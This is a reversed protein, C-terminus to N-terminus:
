VAAALEARRASRFGGARVRPSVAAGGPRDALQDPVRLARTQATDRSYELLVSRGVQGGHGHILQVRWRQVTAAGPAPAVLWRTAAAYDGSLPGTTRLLLGAGGGREAALQLRRAGVRDLRPPAAVVAAVGRCRLCEAIAWAQEAIPTRVMYLRDLPVGMAHLAPPYLERSPDLWILANSAHPLQSSLQSNDTALQSNSERGDSEETEEDESAVRLEYSAVEGRGVGMAAKALLAALFLPRGHEPASLLEHVAGRAFAGGPLLDDLAALGSCFTGAPTASRLGDEGLAHIKGNHCSILQM